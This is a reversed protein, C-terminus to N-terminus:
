LEYTDRDDSSEKSKRNNDHKIKNIFGALREKYTITKTNTISSGEAEYEKETSHTVTKDTKEVNVKNKGPEAEKMIEIKKSKEKIVHEYREKAQKYEESYNKYYFFLTKDEIKNIFYEKQKDTLFTDPRTLFHRLDKLKAIYFEETFEFISNQKYKEYIMLFLFNQAASDNRRDCVFEKVINLLNQPIVIEDAIIVIFIVYGLQEIAGIENLRFLNYLYEGILDKENLREILYKSEQMYILSLMYFYISSTDLLKTYDIQKYKLIEEALCLVCKIDSCSEFIKYMNFGYSEIIVFNEPNNYILCGILKCDNLDVFRKKCFIKQNKVFNKNKKDLLEVIIENIKYKGFKELWKLEIFYNQNFLSDQLLKCVIETCIKHNNEAIIELIAEFIGEHCFIEKNVNTILYKIYTISTNLNTFLIELKNSTQLIDFINSGKTKSLICLIDALFSSYEFLINVCEEDKIIIDIFENKQYSKLIKLIINSQIKCEDIKKISKIIPILSYIGVILINRKAIENLNELASLKDEYYESFELQNTFKLVEDDKSM